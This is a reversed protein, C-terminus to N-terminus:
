FFFFFPSLRTIVKKTELFFRAQHLLYGTPKCIELLRAEYACSFHGCSGPRSMQGREEDGWNKVLSGGKTEARKGAWSGGGETRDGQHRVGNKM